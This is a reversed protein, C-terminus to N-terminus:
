PLCHSGLFLAFNNVWSLKLPTGIARLCCSHMSVAPATLPSALVALILEAEAALVSAASAPARLVAENCSVLWSQALPPVDKETTNNTRSLEHCAM